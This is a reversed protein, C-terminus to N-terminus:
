QRGLYKEREIYRHDENKLIDKGPLDDYFWTPKPMIADVFKELNLAHIVASAWESGGASWVVINHGRAKYKKIAEVHEAHFKFLNSGQDPTEVLVVNEKDDEDPFNWMVLTDDVDFYATPKDSLIIM